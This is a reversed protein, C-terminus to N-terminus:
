DPRRPLSERAQACAELLAVVDRHSHLASLTIRLRARGEPVTPPRIAGVLYGARELEGAMAMTTAEDGCLLPQIPTQSDLLALGHRRAGDRFGAILAILHERRWHERRALHVASLSAAAQAAPAATTYVYPRATETLHQILTDDGLVVAGHGGLAKGLTVLLLPVESADLGAAAVCGRGQPGLVGVGHADDIYLLAQQRRAIRSLAPLPALDGDMSFVGDSVLMAAGAAAACLQREAAAADLHPYRRLQAGALRTADILSAHNLRDQVCVDGRESLLAQQVALNAAFGSGFLLARPYGLWDAIERELAEHERQHGCVLASATAGAGGILAAERLAAIVEPQQALGLYDNGCFGTLWRGDILLRVGDRREVIRRQRLRLREGRQDRLARVRERLDPRVAAAAAPSTPLNMM